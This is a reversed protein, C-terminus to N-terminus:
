SAADTMQRAYWRAFTRNHRELHSLMGPRAASSQLGRQVGECVVIDETHIADFTAVHGAIREELNPADLLHPPLLLHSTFDIRGAGLPHVEFWIASQPLLAIVYNPFPYALGLSTRQQDDLGDVPPDANPYDRGGHGDDVLLEPAVGAYLLTYDGNDPADVVLRAPLLPEITTDHIGIHHYCEGNDMFVKWDWASEGWKTSHVIRWDGLGYAALQESMPAWLKATSPADGDVNVVVFGEWVEHRFEALGYGDREFGPTDRMEPAARLGGDLGFTWKHYPCQISPASGSGPGGCLDMWRHTCVRSLVHLEGTRDRTLIMPEGAVDVAKYDGPEAVESVHGVMMWGARFVREQELRFIEDSCYVSPPLTSWDDREVHLRLEDLLASTDGQATEVCATDACATDRDFSM